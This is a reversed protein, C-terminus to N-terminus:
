LSAALSVSVTLILYIPILFPSLGIGAVIIIQTIKAAITNKIILDMTFSLFCPLDEQPPFQPAHGIPPQQWLKCGLSACFFYLNQTFNVPLYTEM